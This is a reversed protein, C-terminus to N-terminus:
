EERGALGSDIWKPTMQVKGRLCNMHKCIVGIRGRSRAALNSGAVVLKREHQVILQKHSNERSKEKEREGHDGQRRLLRRLRWVLGYWEWALERIGGGGQSKLELVHRRVRRLMVQRFSHARADGEKVVIVVATEVNKKHIASREGIWRGFAADGLFGPRFIPIAEEV